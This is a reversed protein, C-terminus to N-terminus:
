MFRLMIEGTNLISFASNHLIIESAAVILKELNVSGTSKRKKKSNTKRIIKRKPDLFSIEKLQILGTPSMNQPHAFSHLLPFM